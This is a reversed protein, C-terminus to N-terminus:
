VDLKKEVLTSVYTSLEPAAYSNMVIIILNKRLRAMKSVLFKAFRRANDVGNYSQVTDISDLCLVGYHGGVFADSVALSLESLSGPATMCRCVGTSVKRGAKAGSGDIWLIDAPNIGEARLAKSLRSFGANLTVYVGKRRALHAAVTMRAVPYTDPTCRIVIADDEKLTTLTQLLVKNIM